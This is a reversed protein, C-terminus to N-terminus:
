FEPYAANCHRCTKMRAVHGKQYALILEGGLTRFELEGGAEHHGNVCNKIAETAWIWAMRPADDLQDRLTSM